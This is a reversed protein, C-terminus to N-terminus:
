LRLNLKSRSHTSDRLKSDKDNIEHVSTFTTLNAVFFLDYFLQINTSEHPRKLPPDGRSVDIYQFWTGNQGEAGEFSKKDEHREHRQREEESVLIKAFLPLEKDHTLHFIAVDREAVILKEAGRVVPGTPISSAGAGFAM